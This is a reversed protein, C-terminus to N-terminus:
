PEEMPVGVFTAASTALGVSEHVHAIDVKDTNLTALMMWSVQRVQKRTFARGFATLISLTENDEDIEASATIRRYFVTGDKLEIRVHRRGPREHLFRTYGIWEIALVTGDVTMDQTLELDDAWSPLWLANARGQLWYLLSKHAAREARGHLLLPLAQTPWPLGTPDSVLLLGIDNDVLTM